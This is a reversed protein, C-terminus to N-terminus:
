SISGSRVSIQRMDYCNFRQHVSIPRQENSLLMRGQRAQAVQRAHTFPAAFGVGHDLQPMKFVEFNKGSQCAQYRGVNLNIRAM